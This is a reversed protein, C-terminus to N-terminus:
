GIKLICCRLFSKHDEMNSKHQDPPMGVIYTQLTHWKYQSWFRGQLKLFHINNLGHHPKSSFSTTMSYKYQSVTHLYESWFLFFVTKFCWRIYIVEQQTWWLPRRKLISILSWKLIYIATKQGWPYLDVM